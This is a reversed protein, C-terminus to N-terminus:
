RLQRLCKKHGDGFDVMFNVWWGEAFKQEAEEVTVGDIEEWGGALRRSPTWRELKISLADGWGAYEEAVAKVRENMQKQKQEDSM